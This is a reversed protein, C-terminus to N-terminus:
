VIPVSTNRAASSKKTRMPELDTSVTCAICSNMSWNMALAAAACEGAGGDGDVVPPQRELTCGGTEGDFWTHVFRRGVSAELPIAFDDGGCRQALPHTRGNAAAMALLDAISSVAV